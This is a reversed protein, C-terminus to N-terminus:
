RLEYRQEVEELDLGHLGSKYILNVESVNEGALLKIKEKEVRKLQMELRRLADIEISKEL